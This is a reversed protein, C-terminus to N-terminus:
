ASAITATVNAGGNLIDDAIAESDVALVAKGRKGVADDVVQFNVAWADGLNMKQIPTLTIVRPLAM